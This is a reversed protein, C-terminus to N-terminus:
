LLFKYGVTILVTSFKVDGEWYNNNEFKANNNLYSAEIVYPGYEFGCSAIWCFGGTMKEVYNQYVAFYDVLGYGAGASVYFNFDKYSNLPLIQKVLVYYNLMSFNEQWVNMCLNANVGLGVATYNKLYYAYDMKVSFGDGSKQSDTSQLGDIRRLDFDASSSAVKGLKFSVENLGKLPKAALPSVVFFCVLFVVYKKM